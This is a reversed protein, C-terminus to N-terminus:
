GATAREWTSFAYGIERPLRLPPLIQREIYRFPARVSRGSRSITVPCIAILFRLITTTAESGRGEAARVFRISGCSDSSIIARSRCCHVGSEKQECSLFSCARCGPAEGLSVGTGSGTRHFDVVHAYSVCSGATRKQEYILGPTRLNAATSMYQTRELSLLVHDGVSRFGPLRSLVRDLWQLGICFWKTIGAM